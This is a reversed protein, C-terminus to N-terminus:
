IKTKIKFLNFIKSKGNIRNERGAAEELARFM